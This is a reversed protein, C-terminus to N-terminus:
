EGFHTSREVRCSGGYPFYDTTVIWMSKSLRGGPLTITAEIIYGQNQALGAKM